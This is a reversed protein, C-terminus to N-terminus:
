WGWTTRDILKIPYGDRGNPCEILRRVRYRHEDSEWAAYAESEGTYEGVDVVRLIRGRAAAAAREAATAPRQLVWVPVRTGSGSLPISEGACACALAFADIQTCGPM